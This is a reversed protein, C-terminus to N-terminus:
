VYGYLGRVSVEGARVTAEEGDAYRVCLGYGEDVDLATAPRAAGDRLIQVERGVTLCRRRYEALWLTPRELAESRLLDLQAMLAAALAARSVPTKTVMELSAAMDRVEGDFDEERHSVNIGIGLVAATESGLVVSECLIGGLKRGDYVLDNPWKIRPTLGCVQAVARVAAVAGLAPVTMLTAADCKPRWLISLYLGVGPRSQFSRGLRGRGATQEGAIAVAGDPMGEPAWRKCVLNTSDVCAFVQWNEREAAGCAAIEDRYGVSTVEGFKVLIYQVM